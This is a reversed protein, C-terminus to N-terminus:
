DYTMTFVATAKFAGTALSNGDSEMRAIFNLSKSEPIASDSVVYSSNANNPILQTNQNYLIKVGIGSAANSTLSNGLLNKTGGTVKTTTMKTTFTAVSTCDSVNLSFPVDKTVNNNKFDSVFYDGMAINTGGGGLAIVSCTPLVIPIAFTDETINFAYPQNNSDTPTGLSAWGLLGAKPRLYAVKNPNGQFTEKLYLEITARFAIGDWNSEYGDNYSIIKYADTNQAFMNGTGTTTEIRVQYEIGPINTQFSAFSYLGDGILGTATKAWLDEGDNGVSCRGTVTPTLTTQFQALLVSQGSRPTPLRLTGSYNGNILTTSGGYGSNFRCEVAARAPQAYLLACLTIAAGVSSLCLAGPKQKKMM